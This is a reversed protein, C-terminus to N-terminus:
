SDASVAYFTVAALICIRTHLLLSIYCNMNISRSLPVVADSMAVALELCQDSSSQPAFSWSHVGWQCTHSFCLLKKIVQLLM